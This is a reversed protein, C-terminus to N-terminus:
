LCLMGDQRGLTCFGFLVCPCFSERGMPLAKWESMGAYLVWVFVWPCFSERGMPLPSWGSTWAYLVWCFGLVFRSVPWLCLMGDQRGLTFFLFVVFVNWESTGAYFVVVFCFVLVFRSVVWLCLIGDQRGVTCFGFLVCSFLSERGM